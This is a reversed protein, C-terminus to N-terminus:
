HDVVGLVCGSLEKRLTLQAMAWAFVGSPETSRRAHSAESEKMMVWFTRVVLDVQHHLRRSLAQADGWRQLDETCGSPMVM